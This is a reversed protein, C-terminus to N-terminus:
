GHLGNHTLKEREPQEGFTLEEASFRVLVKPGLLALVLRELHVSSCAREPGVAFGITTTGQRKHFVSGSQRHHRECIGSPACRLSRVQRLPARGHISTDRCEGSNGDREGGTQNENGCVVSGCCTVAAVIAAAEHNAIMARWGDHTIMARGHDDSIMPRLGNDSVM